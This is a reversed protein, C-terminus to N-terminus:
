AWALAARLDDPLTSAVEALRTRARLTASGQLAAVLTVLRRRLAPTGPGLAPLALYEVLIELLDGREDDAWYDEGALQVLRAAARGAIGHLYSGGGRAFVPALARAIPLQPVGPLLAEALQATMPPPCTPAAALRAISEGLERINGPGWVVQWANVRKWQRVLGTAIRLRVAPDLGPCAAIAELARLAAPINETHRALVDAIIHTTEQSLPDVETGGDSDPLDDSIARLLRSVIAQRRDPEASDAAALIGLATFAGDGLGATAGHILDTLELDGSRAALRAAAVVRGEREDAQEVSALGSLLRHGASVLDAVPCLPPILDACLRRVEARPHDALLPWLPPLAQDGLGLVCAMVVDRSRDDHFRAVTGVVPEVLGARTEPRCPLLAPIQQELLAVLHPGRGTLLTRKLGVALIEATDPPVRGDRCLEALVWWVSTDFALALTDVYVALLAALRPPGQLEIRRLAAALAMRERPVEGPALLLDVGRELLRDWDLGTSTQAPARPHALLVLLRADQEPDMGLSRALLADVRPRDHDQLARVLELLSMHRPLLLEILRDLHRHVALAGALRSAVVVLGTGAQGRAASAVLASVVLDQQPAPLRGLHDALRALGADDAKALARVADVVAVAAGANVLLGIARERVIDAGDALLLPMLDGVVPLPPSAYRLQELAAAREDDARAALLGEVPGRLSPALGQVVASLGHADVPEAELVAEAAMLPNGIEDSLCVVRWGDAERTMELDTAGHETALALFDDPTAKALRRDLLLAQHGDGIIVQLAAETLTVQGQLLQGLRMLLRVEQGCHRQFVPADAPRLGRPMPTRITAMVPPPSPPRM